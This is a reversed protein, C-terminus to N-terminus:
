GRDHVKAEGTFTSGVANGSFDVAPIQFAGVSTPKLAGGVDVFVQGKETHLGFDTDVDISTAPAQPWLARLDLQRGEVDLRLRTPTAVNLNGNASLKSVDGITAQLDVDLDPPKGHLHLRAEAPKILPWQTLLARAAAPEAKPLDVKLDLKEDQWRVTSGFQVDGMYGDFSAWVAGPARIHLTAVGKADAGGLGRGLLSFRQVDIAAGKPTALLSGHVGSIDAELTPSDSIRGRAFGQGIEVAPLWVRVYRGPQGPSAPKSPPRPTLAHALTPLGDGAPILDAEAREVRVHDVVITLKEDSGLVRKLIDLVNAQATLRTVKLVIHQQEDRVVVNEAEVEGATVQVVNGVTITGRFVDALTNTLFSATARRGAPQNLHAVLGLTAGAGFLATVGVVSLITGLGSLLRRGRAAWLAM